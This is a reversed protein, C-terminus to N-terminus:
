CFVSVYPLKRHSGELRKLSTFSADAYVFAREKSPIVLSLFTL